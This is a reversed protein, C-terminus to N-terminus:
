GSVRSLRDEIQARVSELWAKGANPNFLEIAKRGKGINCPKCAIVLNQLTETGGAAVPEVHDITLDVVTETCYFCKGGHKSFARELAKKAGAAPEACGAVQYLPVKNHDFKIFVISRYPMADVCHQLDRGQVALATSAASKAM